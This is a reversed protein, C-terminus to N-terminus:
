TLQNKVLMKLPFPVSVIGFVIYGNVSISSLTTM